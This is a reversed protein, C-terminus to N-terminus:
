KHETIFGMKKIFNLRLTRDDETAPIELVRIYDEIEIKIADHFLKRDVILGKNIDTPDILQVMSKEDASSAALWV